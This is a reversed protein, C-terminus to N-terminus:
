IHILSLDHGQEKGKQVLLQGVGAADFLHTVVPDAKM